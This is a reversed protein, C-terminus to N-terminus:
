GLRPIRLNILRGRSFGLRPKFSVRFSLSKVRSFSKSFPRAEVRLHSLLSLSNALVFVVRIAVM